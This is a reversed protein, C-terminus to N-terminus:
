SLRTQRRSTWNLWTKWVRLALVTLIQVVQSVTALHGDMVRIGIKIVGVTVWLLGIVQQVQSSWIEMVATENQCVGGFGGAFEVM